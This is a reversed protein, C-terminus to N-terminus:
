FTSNALQNQYYKLLIFNIIERINSNNSFAPISIINYLTKHIVKGRYEENNQYVTTYTIDEILYQEEVHVLEDSDEDVGFSTGLFSQTFFIASCNAFLIVISVLITLFTKKRCQKFLILFRETITLQYSSIELLSVSITPSSKHETRSLSQTYEAIKILAEMFSIKDGHSKNYSADALLERKNFIKKAVLHIFPNYFCIIRASQIIAKLLIDHHKIHTLEHRLTTKLENTSLVQQLRDSIVLIPPYGLVFANPSGHYTYIKPTKIHLEKSLKEILSVLKTDNAQYANITKLYHKKGIFLHYISYIISFLLLFFIVFVIPPHSDLSHHISAILSEKNANNTTQENTQIPPCEEITNDFTSQEDIIFDYWSIELIFRHPTSGTENEGSNTQDIPIIKSSISQNSINQVGENSLNDISTTSPDNGPSDSIAIYTLPIFSFAILFVIIYVFFTNKPHSIKFIKMFLEAMGYAIGTLLIPLLIALLIENM